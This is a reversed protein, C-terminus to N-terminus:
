KGLSLPLSVLSVVQTLAFQDFRPKLTGDKGVDEVFPILYQGLAKSLFRLNKVKGMFPFDQEAKKIVDDLVDNATVVQGSKESAILNPVKLERFLLGLQQPSMIDYVIPFDVKETGAEKGVLAVSKSIVQVPDPYNRKAEKRAEDVRIKYSMKSDNGVDEPDFVNIAGKIEGKMIRLYNPTIDRGLIESAGDYVELLSEWWLRQGEKCSELARDRDVYVRCRHMQIESFHPVDKGLQLNLRLTRTRRCISRKSHEMCSAYLPPRAAAYWVCPEWSPDLTAYDKIKEDPILEKLEIMKMDCLQDSM